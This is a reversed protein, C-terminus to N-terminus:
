QKVHATPAPKTRTKVSKRLSTAQLIYHLRSLFTPRKPPLVFSPIPHLQSSRQSLVIVDQKEGLLLIRCVCRGCTYTSHVLEPRTCPNVLRPRKYARTVIYSVIERRVAQLFSILSSQCQLLFPALKASRNKQSILKKFYDKILSYKSFHRTAGKKGRGRDHSLHRTTTPRPPHQRTM